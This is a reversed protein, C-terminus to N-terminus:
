LGRAARAVRAQRAVQFQRHLAFFLAGFVPVVIALLWLRDSPDGFAYVVGAEIGVSPIAALLATHSRFGSFHERGVVEMTGLGLIILGTILPLRSQSVFGIVAAVAGALIAIESVPVPGFVGRPREGESGLTRTARRAQGIQESERRAQLARRESPVARPAKQPNRRRRARRSKASPV